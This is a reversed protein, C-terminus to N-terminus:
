VNRRLAEAVPLRSVRYAPLLAALLTAAAGVGFAVYIVGPVVRISATYGVDSNPPPPMPIGIGSIAWALSTGLMVGLGAGILGLLLYEKVVLRFIDRQRDGLAMLTGFEGIREYVAM